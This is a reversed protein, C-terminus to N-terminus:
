VCCARNSCSFRRGRSHGAVSNCRPLFLSKILAFRTPWVPGHKHADHTEHRLVGHTVHQCSCEQRRATLVSIHHCKLRAFKFSFNSTTRVPTRPRRHRLFIGFRSSTACHRWMSFLSAAYIDKDDGQFNLASSLASM